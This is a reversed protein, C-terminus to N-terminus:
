GLNKVPQSYTLTGSTSFYPPKLTERWVAIWESNMDGSILRDLLAALEPAKNGLQSVLEMRSLPFQGHQLLVARAVHSAAFM